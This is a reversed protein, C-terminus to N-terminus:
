HSIGIHHADTGHFIGLEINFRSKLREPNAHRTRKSCLIAFSGLVALAVLTKKM